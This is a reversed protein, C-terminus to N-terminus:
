TVSVTAPFTGTVTAKGTTQSIGAVQFYSTSRPKTGSSVVSEM